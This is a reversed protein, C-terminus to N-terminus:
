HVVAQGQKVSINVIGSSRTDSPKSEMESDLKISDDKELGEIQKYKTQFDEFESENVSIPWNKSSDKVSQGILQKVEDGKFTHERVYFDDEESLQEKDIDLM